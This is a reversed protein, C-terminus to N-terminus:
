KDDKFIQKILNNRIPGVILKERFIALILGVIFYIGALLLFGKERSGLLASFYFGGTVSIFIVFLLFVLAIIFIAVIKAAVTSIIGSVKLIAEQYRINVYEKLNATLEEIKDGIESM